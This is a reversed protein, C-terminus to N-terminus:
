EASEAEAEAVLQEQPLTEYEDSDDRPLKAIEDDDMHAYSSVTTYPIGYEKSMGKLSKGNALGDAILKYTKYDRPTRASTKRKSVNDAINNVTATITDIRQPIAIIAEDHVRSSKELEVVRKLLASNLEILKRNQEEVKALREHLATCIKVLGNGQVICKDLRENDM